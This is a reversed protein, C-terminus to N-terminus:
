LTSDYTSNSGNIMFSRKFDRLESDADEYQSIVIEDKNWVMDGFLIKKIKESILNLFMKENCPYRFVWWGCNYLIYM